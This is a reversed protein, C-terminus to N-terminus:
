GTQWEFSQVVIVGRKSAEELFDATAFHTILIRVIEKDSGDAGIGVHNCQLRVAEVNRELQDFVDVMQLNASIGTTYYGQLRLKAEGVILVPKGHRTGEGLINVECDKKLEVRILRALMEIGYKTRLFKPLERYAENELAYSVSRSLGAVDRRILIVDSKLEGVDSKLEGVDTKLIEVDTAVRDLKDGFRRLEFLVTAVMEKLEDFESTRVYGNDGAKMIDTDEM